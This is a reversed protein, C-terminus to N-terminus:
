TNGYRALPFDEFVVYALGRYAPADSAGEKAIILPDPNQTEGGRHVRMTVTSLDIEKGDAWVRRVFGIKGECLGVAFNAFYRYETQEVGGGGFKGTGSTSTIAEERFRTAWIIQGGLRARGYLRPIASGEQATIGPFSQLRPGQVRRNPTMSSLLASDVSAGALGGLAGGIAAGFPGGLLTGIATGVVKLLLTAM